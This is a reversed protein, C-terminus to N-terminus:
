GADDKIREYMKKFEAAKAAYIAGSRDHIIYDGLKAHLRNRGNRITCGYVRIAGDIISRDIDINGKDVSDAFWGPATIEVDSEFQFAEVTEPKRRFRM